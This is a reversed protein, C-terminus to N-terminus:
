ADDAEKIHWRLTADQNLWQEINFLKDAVAEDWQRDTLEATTYVSITFHRQRKTNIACMM